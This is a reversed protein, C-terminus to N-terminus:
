EQPLHPTNVIEDELRKVLREGASNTGVIERIEPHHEVISAWSVELLSWLAAATKPNEQELDDMCNIVYSPNISFVTITSAVLEALNSYAHGAASLSKSDIDGIAKGDKICFYASDAFYQQKQLVTRIENSDQYDVSAEGLVASVVDVYGCSDAPLFIEKAITKNNLAAIIESRNNDIYDNLVVDRMTACAEIVAQNDQNSFEDFAWEYTLGHAAEHVGTAVFNLVSHYLNTYNETLGLTFEISRDKSKFWGADQDGVTISYNEIARSDNALQM